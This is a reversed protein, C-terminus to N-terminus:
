GGGEVHTNQVCQVRGNKETIGQTLEISLLVHGGRVPTYAAARLHCRLVYLSHTRDMVVLSQVPKEGGWSLQSM